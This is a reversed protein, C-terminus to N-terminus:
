LFCVIKDFLPNFLILMTLPLTSFKESTDLIISSFLISNIKWRAASAITPLLPQGYLPDHPGPYGNPDVTNKGNFFSGTAVILISDGQEVHFGTDFLGISSDVSITTDSQAMLSKSLVMLLIAVRFICSYNKM